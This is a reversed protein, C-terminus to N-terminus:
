PRWATNRCCWCSAANKALESLGAALAVHNFLPVRENKAPDVKWYRTGAGTRVAYWFVDTKGIWQPTVSAEQVHQAM